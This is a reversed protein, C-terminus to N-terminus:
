QSLQAGFLLPSHHGRSPAARMERHQLERMIKPHPPSPGPNPPLPPPRPPPGSPSLVRHPLRRSVIPFSWSSNSAARVPFTARTSFSRDPLFPPIRPPPDPGRGRDLRSLYPSSGAGPRCVENHMTISVDQEEHNNCRTAALSENGIYKKFSLNERKSTKDSTAITARREKQAGRDRKLAKRETKTILCEKAEKIQFESSENLKVKLLGNLKEGSVTEESYNSEPAHLHPSTQHKKLPPTGQQEWAALAEAPKPILSSFILKPPPTPFLGSLIIKNFTNVVEVSGKGRKAMRLTDSEREGKKFSFDSKLLLSDFNRLVHKMERHLLTVNQELLQQTYLQEEVVSHYTVLQAIELMEPVYIKHLVVAIFVELCECSGPNGLLEKGSQGPHRLVSHKQFITKKTKMVCSLHEDEKIILRGGSKQLSIQDTDNAKTDESFEQYLAYLTSQFQVPPQSTEGLQRPKCGLRLWTVASVGSLEYRLEMDPHPSSSAEQERQGQIGEESKVTDLTSSHTDSTFNCSVALTETYGLISKLPGESAQKVVKKTDNYKCSEGSPLDSRHGDYKALPVLCNITCSANSVIKLSNVYKEHNIGMAFM